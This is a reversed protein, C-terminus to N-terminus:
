EVVVKGRMTPHIKCHYAFTGRQNFRVVATAGPKIRGTDFSGRRTATHAIRSDNAFAVRTGRDIQLTAPQFAFNAIKVRGRRDESAGAGAGAARQAPLWAALLALAMVAAVMAIRRGGPLAHLSTM